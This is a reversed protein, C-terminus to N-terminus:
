SKFFKIGKEQAVWQNLYSSSLNVVMPGGTKKIGNLACLPLTLEESIAKFNNDVIVLRDADPDFAFGIDTKNQRCFMEFKKLSKDTPEPPRPFYDLFVTYQSVFKLKLQALLQPGIETACAGLTDLGIRLQLNTKKNQFIKQITQDVHKQCAIAKKNSFIKGYQQAPLSFSLKSALQQLNKLFKANDGENFFDGGKRIFKFANYSMPNHSASVMLGGALKNQRVYHKLTPTPVIDLYHINRGLASLISLAQYSFAPGSPRTDRAIAIDGAPLSRQFAFLIHPLNNLNLDDPVIGRLGSVSFKLTKSKLNLM